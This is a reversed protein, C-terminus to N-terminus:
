LSACSYMCKSFSVNGSRYFRQAWKWNTQDPLLKLHWVLWSSAMQTGVAIVVFLTDKLLSMWSNNVTISQHKIVFTFTIWLHWYTALKICLYSQRYISELSLIIPWSDHPSHWHMAKLLSQGGTIQIMSYPRTSIDTSLHHAPLFHFFNTKLFWLYQWHKAKFHTNTVSKLDCMEVPM